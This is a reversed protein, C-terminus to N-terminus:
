DAGAIITENLHITEAFAPHVTAEVLLNKDFALIAMMTIVMAVATTGLNARALGLETKRSILAGAWVCQLHVESTLTLLLAVRIPHVGLVTTFVAAMMVMVMIMMIVAMVRMRTWFTFGFAHTRRIHDFSIFDTNILNRTWMWAASSQNTTETISIDTAEIVTALHALTWRM